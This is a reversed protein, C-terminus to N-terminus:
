LFATIIDILEPYFAAFGLLTMPEWTAVFLTSLIFPKNGSEIKRKYEVYCCASFTIVLLGVAFLVRGQLSLHLKFWRLIPEATNILM